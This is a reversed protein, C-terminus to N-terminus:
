MLGDTSHPAAGASIEEGRPLALLKDRTPRVLDLLKAGTRGERPLPLVPSHEEYFNGDDDSVQVLPIRQGLLGLGIRSSILASAPPRPSRGAQPPGLVRRYPLLAADGRPGRM